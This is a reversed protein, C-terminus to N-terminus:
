LLLNCWTITICVSPQDSLKKIWRTVLTAANVFNLHSCKNNLRQKIMCRTTKTPLPIPTKLARKNRTNRYLRDNIDSLRYSMCGVTVLETRESVACSNFIWSGPWSLVALILEESSIIIAIGLSSVCFGSRFIHIGQLFPSGSFCM